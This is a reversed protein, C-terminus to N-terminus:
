AFFFNTIFPHVFSHVSPCVSMIMSITIYIRAVVSYIIRLVKLDDGSPTDFMPDAWLVPLGHVLWEALIDLKCAEGQKM